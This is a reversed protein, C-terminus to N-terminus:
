LMGSGGSTMRLRRGKAGFSRHLSAAGFSGVFGYIRRSEFLWPRLIVFGFSVGHGRHGRHHFFKVEEEGESNAIEVGPQSM